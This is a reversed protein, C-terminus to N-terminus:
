ETSQTYCLIYFVRVVSTATVTFTLAAYYYTRDTLAADPPITGRWVNTTADYAMDITIPPVLASQTADLLEGSFTANSDTVVTQNVTDFVNDLEIYNTSGPKIIYKTPTM